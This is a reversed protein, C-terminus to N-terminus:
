RSSGDFRRSMSAIRAVMFGLNTSRCRQYACHLRVFRVNLLAASIVASKLAASSALSVSIRSTFIAPAKVSSTRHHGETVVACLEHVIQPGLENPKLLVNRFIM